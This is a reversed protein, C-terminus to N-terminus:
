LQFSNIHFVDILRDIRTYCYNVYEPVTAMVTLISGDSLGEELMALFKKNRAMNKVVKTEWKDTDGTVHRYEFTISEPGVGKDTIHGFVEKIETMIEIASKQRDTTPEMVRPAVLDDGFIDTTTFVAQYYTTKKKAM